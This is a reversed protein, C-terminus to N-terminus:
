QDVLKHTLLGIAFPGLFVFALPIKHIYALYACVLCVIPLIWGHTFGRHKDSSFAMYVVGTIASHKDKGYWMFVAAIVIGIWAFIRSPISGTDIDSALSGAITTIAFAVAIYPNKTMYMTTGGVILATASGALLHQKFMM